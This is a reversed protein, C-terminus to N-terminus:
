PIQKGTVIWVESYFEIVEAAEELASVARDFDGEKTGFKTQHESSLRKFTDVFEKTKM